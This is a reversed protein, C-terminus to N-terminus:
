NTCHGCLVMSRRGSIESRASIAARSAGASPVNSAAGAGASSDVCSRLRKRGSRSRCAIRSTSREAIPGHDGAHVGAALRNSVPELDILGLGLDDPLDERAGAAFGALTDGRFQVRAAHAARATSRPTHGSKVPRRRFAGAHKVVLQVEPPVDPIARAPHFIRICPLPLANIPRALLPLDLITLFQPDEVLGRPACRSLAHVVGRCAPPRRPRPPMGVVSNPPRSRQPRQPPATM